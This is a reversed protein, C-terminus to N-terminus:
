HIADYKNNVAGQFEVINFLAWKNVYINFVGYKCSGVRRAFMKNKIM